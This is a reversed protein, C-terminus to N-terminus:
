KTHLKKLIGWTCECDDSIINTMFTFEYIILAFLGKQVYTYVKIIRIYMIIVCIYWIQFGLLHLFMMM